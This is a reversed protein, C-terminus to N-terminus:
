RARDCEVISLSGGRMTWAPRTAPSSAEGVFGGGLSGALGGVIAHVVQRRSVVSGPAGGDLDVRLAAGPVGCAFGRRAARAAATKKAAFAHDLM